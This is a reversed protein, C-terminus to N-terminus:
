KGGDATLLKRIDEPSLVRGAAKVEGDIVLGPTMLINFKMIEKIDQVKEIEADIGSEEIAKAANEALTKCKACGTGLIQIRKM